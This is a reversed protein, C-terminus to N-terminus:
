HTGVGVVVVYNHEVIDATGSKETVPDSASVEAWCWYLRIRMTRQILRCPSMVRCLMLIISDRFKELASTTCTRIFTFVSKLASLLHSLFVYNKLTM